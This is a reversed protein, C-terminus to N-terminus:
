ITPHIWVMVTIFSSILLLKHILVIGQFPTQRLKKIEYIIADPDKTLGYWQRLQFQLDQWNNRVEYPLNQHWTMASRQLKLAVVKCISREPLLTEECLIKLKHLWVHIDEDEKGKFDPLLSLVRGERQLLWGYTTLGDEPPIPQQEDQEAWNRPQTMNITHMEEDESDSWPACCKEQWARALEEQHQDMTDLPTTDMRIAPGPLLPHQEEAPHDEWMLTQPWRSSGKDNDQATRRWKSLRGPRGPMM